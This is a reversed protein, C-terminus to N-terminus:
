KYMTWIHHPRQKQWVCFVLECNLLNLAIPHSIFEIRDYHNLTFQRILAQEASSALASAMPMTSALISALLLCFSIMSLIIIERAIQRIWRLHCMWISKCLRFSLEAMTVCCHVADFMLWSICEYKGLIVIEFQSPLERDEKKKLWYEAQSAQFGSCITRRRRRNDRQREVGIGNRHCKDYAPYNFVIYRDYKNM